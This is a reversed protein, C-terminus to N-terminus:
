VNAGARLVAWITGGGRSAREGAFYVHRLSFIFIQVAHSGTGEIVSVTDNSNGDFGWSHLAAVTFNANQISLLFYLLAHASTYIIHYM